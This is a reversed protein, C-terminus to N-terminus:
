QASALAPSSEGDEAVRVLDGPRLTRSVAQYPGVIVTEDGELGAKIEIHTDDSIGTEVEVMHVVGGKLIFVVRRLDEKPRM